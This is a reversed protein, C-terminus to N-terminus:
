DQGGPEEIVRESRQISSKIFFAFSVGGLLAAIALFAANNRVVPAVIVALAAYGVLLGYFSPRRFLIRLLDVFRYVRVDGM